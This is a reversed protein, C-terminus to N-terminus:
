PRSLFLMEERYTKYGEKIFNLNFESVRGYYKPGNVFLPSNNHKKYFATYAGTLAFHYGFKKYILRMIYVAVFLNIRELDVFLKDFDEKVVNNSLDLAVELQEDPNEPIPCNAPNNLISQYNM